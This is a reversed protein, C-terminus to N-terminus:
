SVKHNVTKWMHGTDILPKDFGKKKITSPANKQWGGDMISKAIYGELISGIAGLSQYATMKGDIIQKAIKEQIKNRDAKFASWAGRMFPRSPIIITVKGRTITAGFENIRAIKAVPTGVSNGKTAGYRDSEFWGAEVKKVTLGKLAKIHGDILKSRNSNAM